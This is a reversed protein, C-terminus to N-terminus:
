NFVGHKPKILFNKNENISIFENHINKGIKFEAEKVEEDFIKLDKVYYWVGADFLVGFTVFGAAIFNM